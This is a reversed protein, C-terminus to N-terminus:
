STAASGRFVLSFATAGLFIAFIFATTSPPRRCCVERFVEFSLKRNAWALLIAGFAGVGSPRPRRRSASLLHQRAGGPDPRGGAARGLLVGLAVRHRRLQGARRADPAPAAEPVLNAYVLM